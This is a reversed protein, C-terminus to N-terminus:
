GPQVGAASELIEALIAGAESLRDPLLERRRRGEELKERARRIARRQRTTFVVADDQEAAGFLAAHIREELAPMGQGTVASVAVPDAGTRERVDGVSIREPLDTKNLVMLAPCTAAGVAALVEADEGDLPRSADFLVLLLDSERLQTRSRDVGLMELRDGCRRIGATDVLRFPHGRIVVLSEVWDRTTGAREHTLARDEALLRNFLASKGANPKGAIVVRPPECLATGRRAGRLLRDLIDELRTLATGDGAAAKGALIICSRLQRSLAGDLQRLLMRAAEATLADPLRQSAEHRVADSVEDSLSEVMAPARTAGEALLAAVLREQPVIGGHCNIELVDGRARRCILVEDLPVGQREMLGYILRGPGLEAIRRGRPNRFLRAVIAVADRGQVRIVGIGGEGRPTLVSVRCDAGDFGGSGSGM